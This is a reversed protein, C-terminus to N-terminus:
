GQTLVFFYLLQALLADIVSEKRARKKINKSQKQPAPLYTKM